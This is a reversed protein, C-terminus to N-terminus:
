VQIGEKELEERLQLRMRMLRSRGSQHTMGFDRSIQLTTQGGFYRRIFIQRNTKELASLFRNITRRVLQRDMESEPDVGGPLVGELESLAVNMRINRKAAEEYERRNLAKNHVIRAIYGTQAVPRDPPIQNWVALFTDSVVEEVDEESQLQSRALSRCLAGYTEQLVELAQESRELLLTLIQKQKM